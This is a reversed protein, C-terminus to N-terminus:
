IDKKGIFIKNLVYLYFILCESNQNIGLYESTFISINYNNIFTTKGCITSKTNITNNKHFPTISSLVVFNFNFCFYASIQTESQFLLMVYDPM